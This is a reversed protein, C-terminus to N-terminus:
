SASILAMRSSKLHGKQHYGKKKPQWFRFIGIKASFWPSYYPTKIFHYGHVYQVNLDVERYYVICRTLLELIAFAVPTCLIGSCCCCCCSVKPDEVAKLMIEVFPTYLKSDLIREEHCQVKLRLSGLEKRCLVACRVNHTPFLM